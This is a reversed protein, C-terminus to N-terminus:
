NGNNNQPEIYNNLYELAEDFTSVGVIEIEYDLDNKLQMAEEYNEGNPVFFIEAKAKEAGKLKYKIGAIPGVKGERDITGTGVIKKGKTIDEEILQNYIALTMMLGGSPGSESSKFHFTIKPDTEMEEKETMMLGIMKSEQYAVIKAEAKQEKQERLITFQITQGVSLSQILISLETKSTIPKGNIKLIEDGVKLNTDAIKDVYTVYLQKNTKKVTKGAKEFAVIIANQNAEELQLRDRFYVDKAEENEMVVESRKIIDWDKKFKSMLLTPITAKLESVYALHFSGTSPYGNEIEIRSSIDITGGPTEIYYPFEFTFLFLLVFFLLFLTINEKIIQKIKQYIKKIMFKDERKIKHNDKIIIDYLKVLLSTNSMFFIPVLRKIKNRKNNTANSINVSDADIM